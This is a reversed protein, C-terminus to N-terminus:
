KDQLSFDWPNELYIESFDTKALQMPCELRVHSSFLFAMFVCLFPFKYFSLFFILLLM